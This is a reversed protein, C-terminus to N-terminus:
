RQLLRRQGQGLVAEQVQALAVQLVVAQEEQEVQKLHELGGGGVRGGRRM